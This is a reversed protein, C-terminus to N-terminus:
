FIDELKYPEMRVLYEHIAKKYKKLDNEKQISAPLSNFFKLCRYEVQKQTKTLHVKPYTYNWNRINHNQKQPNYHESFLEKNKHLFLLCEQAYIAYITLMKNRKFIGRCSDLRNINFITRIAKKQLIFLSSLNGSGYFLIGFRLISEVSSYYVTRLTSPNLYRSVVKLGYIHSSVKKSVYEIHHKWTLENDIHIGLFKTHDM